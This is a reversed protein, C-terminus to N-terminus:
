ESEEADPKLNSSVRRVEPDGLYLARHRRDLRHRAHQL